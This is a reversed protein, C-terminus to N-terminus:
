LATGVFGTGPTQLATFVTDQLDEGLKQAATESESWITDLFTTGDTECFAAPRFFLGETGLLSGSSATPRSFTGNKM